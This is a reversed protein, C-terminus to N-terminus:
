VGYRVLKHLFFGSIVLFLLMCFKELYILRNSIYVEISFNEWILDHPEKAPMVGVDIDMVRFPENKQKGLSEWWKKEQFANLCQERDYVTQFTIFAVVPRSIENMDWQILETIKNEIPGLSDLKGEYIAKGRNALQEIICAIDVKYGAQSITPKEQDIYAQVQSALKRRLYQKFGENPHKSIWEKLLKKKNWRDWLQPSIDIYVSYDAVSHTNFTQLSRDLENKKKLRILLLLYFFGGLFSASSAYVGVKQNYQLNDSIDCGVQVYVKAASHTCLSNREPVFTSLSIKCESM